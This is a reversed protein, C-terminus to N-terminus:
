ILNSIFENKNKPTRGSQLNFNNKEFYTDTFVGSKYTVSKNNEDIIDTRIISADYQKSIKSFENLLSDASITSENIYFDFNFETKGINDIKLYDNYKATMGFVLSVLVSITCLLITMSKKMDWLVGKKLLILFNIVKRM